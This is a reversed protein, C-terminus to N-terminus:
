QDAAGHVRGSSFECGRMLNKHRCQHESHRCVTAFLAHRTARFRHPWEPSARAALELCRGSATVRQQIGSQLRKKQPSAEVCVCM